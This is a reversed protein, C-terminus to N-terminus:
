GALHPIPVVAVVVVGAAEAEAAAVAAVAAFGTRHRYETRIYFIFGREPSKKYQELRGGKIM